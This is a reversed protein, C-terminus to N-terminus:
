SNISGKVLTGEEGTRGRWWGRWLDWTKGVFLWSKCSPLPCGQLVLLSLALWLAPCDGSVGSLGPSADGPLISGSHSARPMLLHLADRLACGRALSVDSKSGWDAERPLLGTVLYRRMEIEKLHSKFSLLRGAKWSRIKKQQQKKSASHFIKLASIPTPWSCPPLYLAIDNELRSLIIFTDGM